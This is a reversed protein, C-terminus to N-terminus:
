TQITKRKTLLDQVAWQCLIDCTLTPIDEVLARTVPIKIIFNVHFSIGEM